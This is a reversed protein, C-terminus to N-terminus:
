NWEVAHRTDNRGVFPPHKICSYALPYFREVGEQVVDVVVLMNEIGTNDGTLLHKSILLILGTHLADIQVIINIGMDGANVHDAVTVAPVVHQLIIQAGWGADRIHQFVALHHHAQIRIQKGTRM